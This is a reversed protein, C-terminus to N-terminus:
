EFGEIMRNRRHEPRMVYYQWVSPRPEDWISQGSFTAVADMLRGTREMVARTTHRAAVTEVICGTM